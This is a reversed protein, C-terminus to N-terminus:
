YNMLYFIVIGFIGPIDFITVLIITVLNIPIMINLSSLFTNYGFLLIIGLIIKKLLKVAFKFMIDGM